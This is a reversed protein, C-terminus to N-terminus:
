DLAHAHSGFRENPLPSSYDVIPLGDEPGWTGAQTALAEGVTQGDGNLAHHFADFVVPLGTMKHLEGVDSFSYLREDNEVVLRERVGPALADVAAAFRQAAAKKDGYVGGGHIQIKATRDLGLLDLIRAHYRLDARAAQIVEPRPSSLLTYQGPHM